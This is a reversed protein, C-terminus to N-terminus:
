VVVTGHLWLLLRIARSYKTVFNWAYKAYFSWIPEIPLGDYTRTALKEYPAGKLVGEVLKLWQARTAAPFEAGLTVDDSM